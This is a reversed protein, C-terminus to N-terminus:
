SPLSSSPFSPSSLLLFYMGSDRVDVVVVKEEGPQTHQTLLLTRLRERSIRNLTAVTVSSM